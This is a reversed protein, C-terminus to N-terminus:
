KYVDEINPILSTLEISDTQPPTDSYISKSLENGSIKALILTTNFMGGKSNMKDILLTGAQSLNDKNQNIIERVDEDSLCYDNPSIRTNCLGQTCLLLTDQDEPNFTLVQSATSFYSDSGLIYWLPQNCLLQTRAAEESIIGKDIFIQTYTQDKTIQYINNQRLLYLRSTGLHLVYIKSDAIIVGTFNSYGDFDEVKNSKDLIEVDVKVIASLLKKLASLGSISKKSPKYTLTKRVRDIVMQSAIKGENGRGGDAVAFLVKQDEVCSELSSLAEVKNDATFENNELNLVLFNDSNPVNIERLSNGTDSQAYLEIQM